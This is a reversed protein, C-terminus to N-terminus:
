LTLQKIFETPEERAMTRILKLYYEKVTYYFLNHEECTILRKEYLDKVAKEMAWFSEILDTLDMGLMVGVSKEHSMAYHDALKCECTGAYKKNVKQMKINALAIAEDMPLIGQHKLAMAEDMVQHLEMCKEHEKNM